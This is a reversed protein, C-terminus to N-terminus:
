VLAAFALRRHAGRKTYVGLAVGTTARTTRVTGRIGVTWAFTPHAGAALAHTTTRVVDTRHIALAAGALTCFTLTYAGPDVLTVFAVDRLIWLVGVRDHTIRLM